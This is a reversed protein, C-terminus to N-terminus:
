DAFILSFYWIFSLLSSMGGGWMADPRLIIFFHGASSAVCNNIHLRNLYSSVARFQWVMGRGVVCSTVGSGKCM